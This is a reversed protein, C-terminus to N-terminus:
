RVYHLLISANKNLKKLSIFTLKRIDAAKDEFLSLGKGFVIPEITLYIEDLMNNRLCYTYTQTGGLVVIKKYGAEQIIRKIDAKQPDCFLCKESVNRLGAANGASHTFVICNRKSLPKKASEYTTRGAIVADADDLIRHLVDKDEKSTWGTFEGSRTAIKGDVTMAAIAIYVPKKRRVAM